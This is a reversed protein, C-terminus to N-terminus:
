AGEESGAPWTWGPGPTAVRRRGHSGAGRSSSWSPTPDRSGITRGAPPPAPYRCALGNADGRLARVAAVGAPGRQAHRVVFGYPQHFWITIRPELRRVLRAAARSEPQSLPRRGGYYRSGRPSRRWGRPFNRNLDIGRANQRIALSGRGSERQPRDVPRRGAPRAHKSAGPHGQPWRARRRPDPRDRPGLRPMGPVRASRSSRAARPRSARTSRGPSPRSPWLSGPARDVAFPGGQPPGKWREASADCGRGAGVAEPQPESINRPM